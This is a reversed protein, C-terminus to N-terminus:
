TYLGTITLYTRHNYLPDGSQLSDDQLVSVKYENFLRVVAGQKGRGVGVAVLRNTAKSNAEELYSM